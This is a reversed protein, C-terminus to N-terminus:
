SFRNRVFGSRSQGFSNLAHATFAATGTDTWARVLGLNSALSILKRVTVQDSRFQPAPTRAHAQRLTEVHNSLRTSAAERDNHYLDDLAYFTIESTWLGIAHAFVTEAAITTNRGLELVHRRNERLVTDVYQVTAKGIGSDPVWDAPAQVELVVWYTEDFALDPAFIRIGEEETVLDPLSEVGYADQARERAGAVDREVRARAPADTILDHGYLHWATVAVDLNIQLQINIAALHERRALDEALNLRVDEPNTVLTCFGGTIGALAELERMRADEGFGFCSLTLEGRTREAINRRISIWDREGSTPDGDSFLYLCNVTDSGYRSIEDIGYLLGMNIDTGGGAWLDALVQALQQESIDAKPRAKLVTKVQTEFSVIGLVDTDRLQAYLERIASKVTDLKEGEMSASTDVAFVFNVPMTQRVPSEDERPRGARLALEVFHTTNDKARFNQEAACLGHSVAIGQGEPPGPVGSPNQAVFDDFRIQTQDILVGQDILDAIGLTSKTGFANNRRVFLGNRPLPADRDDLPLDVLPWRTVQADIEVNVKRSLLDDGLDYPPLSGASQTHGQQQPYGQDYGPLYVREYKQEQEQRAPPSDPPGTATTPWNIVPFAGTDVDDPEIRVTPVTPQDGFDSDWWDDGTRSSRRRILVVVVVVAVIAVGALVLVWALNM